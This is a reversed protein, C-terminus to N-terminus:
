ASPHPQREAVDVFLTCVCLCVRVDAHPCGHLEKTNLLKISRCAAQLARAIRLWTAAGLSLQWLTDSTLHLVCSVKEAALILGVNLRSTMPLRDVKHLARQKKVTRKAAPKVSGKQVTSPGAALSRSPAGSASSSPGAGEHRDAGADGPRPGTADQRARRRPSVPPSLPPPSPGCLNANHFAVIARRVLELSVEAEKQKGRASSLYADVDLMRALVERPADQESNTLPNATDSDAGDYGGVVKPYDANIAAM